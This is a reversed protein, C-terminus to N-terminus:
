KSEAGLYDRIFADATGAQSRATSYAKRVDATATEYADRVMSAPEAPLGEALEAAEADAANYADNQAAAEEKNRALFADNSAIAYGLAEARKDLYATLPSLDAEGFAAQAEDLEAQASSLAALAENTKDKSAQVNEPTTETVLAAAERALEDAELLRSWAADVHGVAEWASASAAVLQSGADLLSQRAGIAAVAQNAAEKDASEGLEASASRADEDADALLASAAELQGPLAAAKEDAEEGFPNEVVDNLVLLTEDAQAILSLAGDLQSVNAQHKQFGQYLYFGGAALLALTVLVVVVIAAARSLRRRAKRRAIEEEPSRLPAAHAASPLSGDSRGLALSPAAKPSGEGGALDPTPRVGEAGLVGFTAPAADDDVSVFDGTSLHLGKAKTPTAIPKKRRGPLTFLAIRGFIPARKGEEPAEGDLAQKAADLVSFSIENSTGATHRKIHAAGTIKDDLRGM